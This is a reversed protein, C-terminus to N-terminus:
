SPATANDTETITKSSRKAVSRLATWRGAFFSAASLVLGSSSLIIILKTSM